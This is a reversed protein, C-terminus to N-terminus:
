PRQRNTYVLGYGLLKMDKGAETQARIGLATGRGKIRNRTSVVSRDYDFPDTVNEPIYNKLLKYAQFANSYTEGWNWTYSIQCGSPNTFILSDDVGIAYGTETREFHAQLLPAKKAKGIIDGLSDFGSEIYGPQDVGWDEFDFVDAFTSFRFSYNGTSGTLTLIKISSADAVFATSSISVDEGAATVDEGGATVTETITLQTSASGAIGSVPLIATTTGLTYKGFAGLSIDFYLVRNFAKNLINNFDTTGNTDSYFWLIKNAGEDFVSFSTTKSLNAIQQYETKITSSTIDQAELAGGQGILLRYLSTEGWYYMTDKAFVISDANVAGQDTVKRVSFSDARFSSFEGDGSIVWVGNDAVVALSPGIPAIKYIKGIEELNLVGGDTSVLENISEATPDAEQYCKSAKTLDDGVVQSYYVNNTFNTGELGAYWVRGAYFAVAEPRTGASETEDLSLYQGVEPDLGPVNLALGLTRRTIYFAEKIFRGRPAPTNGTYDNKLLWPSYATQKEVTDGGGAQYSHFVDAITPYFGISDYTYEVPRTSIVASNPNETSSCDVAADIVNGEIVSFSDGTASFTDTDLPWGQNLLNYMHAGSVFAQRRSGSLSYEESTVPDTATEGEKIIKFDRIKLNLIETAVAGKDFAVAPETFTIVFPDNYKGTVYLRGGGSVAQIDTKFRLEVTSDSSRVTDPIQIPDAAPTTSSVKNDVLYYFYLNNGIQVVAINLNPDGNVAKWKFVNTATDFLTFGSAPFPIVDSNDFALGARRSVSGDEQLDLNVMDLAANEPYSLPNAETILGGTFNAYVKPAAQRVM